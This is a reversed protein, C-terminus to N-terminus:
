RDDTRRASAEPTNEGTPVGAGGSAASMAAGGPKAPHGNRAPIEQMARSVVLEIVQALTADLSYSHVIPVNRELALSKIYRQIRRINVFFDLYRDSPRSRNDHARALFHSRHAEEDEVAIVFQVVFAADAFEGPNFFGPVLHAGELILDTNEAVARRILARAGVVVAQAQERYGIIVPDANRPLPHRVLHDADFSSTHLTPMLEESFMSRMVERIADTPIIRTIGLRGALQTAVTSKGVGTAGGILIILPRDIRNVVQWKAFSDAYRQGVEDVLVESALQSLEARTIAPVGREHLREEIQEAVQFARAPPLGTAMISSAMLGKSYPLAHEEDSIVIHRPNQTM